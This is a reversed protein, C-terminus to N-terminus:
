LFLEYVGGVWCCGVFIAVLGIICLILIRSVVWLWGWGFLRFCDCVMGVCFISTSAICNEFFTAGLCPCWSLWVGGLFGPLVDLERLVFSVVFLFWRADVLRGAGRLLLFVTM